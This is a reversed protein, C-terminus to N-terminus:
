SSPYIYPICVGPDRRVACSSSPLKTYTFRAQPDHEPHADPFDALGVFIPARSGNCGAPEPWQCIATIMGDAECFAILLTTDKFAFPGAAIRARGTYHIPTEIEALRTEVEQLSRGLAHRAAEQFGPLLWLDSAAWCYRARKFLRAKVRHALGWRLQWIWCNAPSALDPLSQTMAMQGSVLLITMWIDGEYFLV